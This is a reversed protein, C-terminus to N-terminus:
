GLMIPCHNWCTTISHRRSQYYILILYFRVQIKMVSLTVQHLLAMFRKLGPIEEEDDDFYSRETPLRADDVSDFESEIKRRVLKVFDPMPLVKHRKGCYSCEGTSGNENIYNQLYPSDFHDACVSKDQIEGLVIRGEEIDMLYDKIRSM